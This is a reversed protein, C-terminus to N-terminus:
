TKTIWCASFRLNTGSIVDACCISGDAGITIRKEYNAERVQLNQIPYCDAPLKWQTGSSSTIRINGGASANYWVNSVCTLFCIRGWKWVCTTDSNNFKYQTVVLESDSMAGINERVQSKQSDSLMQASITLVDRELKNKLNAGYLTEAYIGVETQTFFEIGHDNGTFTGDVTISSVSPSSKALYIYDEDFEYERGTSDAIARNAESYDMREVRSIAQGLNLDIEDVVSGAKLLGYPFYTSM